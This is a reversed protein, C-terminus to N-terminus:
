HLAPAQDLAALLPPDRGYIDPRFHISGDAPASVTWYLILIPLHTAPTITTTKESAVVASISEASWQAPDNLLLRVLEFVNETRICGSSFSRQGRDFLEKHPTDHLYVMYPNQFNIRAQGLSNGPGPDQRLVINGPHSWNISSAALEKGSGGDFIRIRNRALYGPDRRIKPLVDNRLITPPVTWTPNLTIYSIESRFLPTSRYPKGVQVRSSWVVQGDRFLNVRFGAIDVLVFDGQLEHLVWRARELNVRVQDIRQAVSVNLSALTGAGVVGDVDLANDRQYTQVAQELGADYFEPDVPVGVSAEPADDATEAVAQAGAAVGSLLGEAVLRQRLLAVRPETQGPKLASGAPISPWADAPLSRLRALATRLREYVPHQPRAQDFLGAIDDRALHSNILDLAADAEYPHPGFNWRADLSIPDVKGRWLHLVALLCSQTAQLERALPDDAAPESILPYDSPDLGDNSLELLRDHLKALREPAQWAPAFDRKQYFAEVAADLWARSPSTAAPTSAADHLMEVYQRLQEQLPGLTGATSQASVGFPLAVGAILLLALAWLRQGGSIRKGSITGIM